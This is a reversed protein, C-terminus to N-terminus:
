PSSASTGLKVTNFVCIQTVRGSYHTLYCGTYVHAYKTYVHWSGRLWVRTLALSLLKSEGIVYLMSLKMTWLECLLRTYISINYKVLVNGIGTVAGDLAHAEPQENAPISPEFGTPSM